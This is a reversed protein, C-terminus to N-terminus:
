RPLNAYIIIVTGPWLAILVMLNTEHMSNNSNEALANYNQYMIM